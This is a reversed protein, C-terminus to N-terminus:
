AWWYRDRLDPKTRSALQLREPSVTRYAKLGQYIALTYLKDDQNQGHNPKAPPSLVDCRFVRLVQWWYM